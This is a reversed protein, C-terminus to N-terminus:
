SIWHNTVTPVLSQRLVTDQALQIWDVGKRETEKLDTKINEGRRHRQIGIHGKM